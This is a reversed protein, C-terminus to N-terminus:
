PKRDPHREVRERSPLPPLRTSEPGRGGRPPPNPLPPSPAAGWCDRARGPENGLNPAGGIEPINLGKPKGGSRPEVDSIGRRARRASWGRGAGRSPGDGPAGPRDSATLSAKLGLRRSGGRWSDGPSPCSPRESAVAFHGPRRLARRVRRGRSPRGSAVGIVFGCAVEVEAAREAEAQRRLRRLENLCRFFAREAGIEYRRALTAEKSPDLMAIRAAEARLRGAEAPDVGEPARFDAEVRRIRESLAATQQDAAREMRVSNLAARRALLHGVEGEAGLEQAFAIARREVEAADAEPLVVGAGTLGHKLANGRSQAKGEETKPGTSRAANRRNAERKADSVFM